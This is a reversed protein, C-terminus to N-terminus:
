SSKPCFIIRRHWQNHLYWNMKEKEKGDTSERSVSCSLASRRLSWGPLPTPRQGERCHRPGQGTVAHARGPPVCARTWGSTPPAPREEDMQHSSWGGSRGDRRSSWGEGHGDRPSRTLPGSQQRERAGAEAGCGVVIGVGGQLGLGAGAPVACSARAPPHLEAL